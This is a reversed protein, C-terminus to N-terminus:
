KGSVKANPVDLLASLSNAFKRAAPLVNDCSYGGFDTASNENWVLLKKEGNHLFVSVDMQPVSTRGYGLTSFSKKKISVKIGTMAQM